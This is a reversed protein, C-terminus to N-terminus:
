HANRWTLAYPPLQKLLATFSRDDALEPYRERAVVLVDYAIFELGHLNQHQILQKAAVIYYAKQVSRDAEARAVSEGDVPLGQSHRVATIFRVLAQPNERLEIWSLLAKALVANSANRKTTLNRDTLQWAVEIEDRAEGFRHQENLSIARNLHPVPDEPRLESARRLHYEAKDFNKAAVYAFGLNSHAISKSETALDLASTFDRISDNWDLQMAFCIGRARYLSANFEGSLGESASIAETLVRKAEAYASQDLMISAVQLAALSRRNPKSARDFVTQSVESAAKTQGSQLLAKSHLLAADDVWEAPLDSEALEAEIAFNRWIRADQDRNEGASSMRQGLDALRLLNKQYDLEYGRNKIRGFDVEARESQGQQILLILTEFESEFRTPQRAIVMSAVLAAAGIAAVAIPLKTSHVVRDRLEQARSNVQDRERHSSLDLLPLLFMSFAAGVLGFIANAGSLFEGIRAHPDFWSWCLLLVSIGLFVSAGIRFATQKLPVAIPGGAAPETLNAPNGM